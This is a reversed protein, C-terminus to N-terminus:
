SRVARLAEARKGAVVLGVGAVLFRMSDVAWASICFFAGRLLGDVGRRM